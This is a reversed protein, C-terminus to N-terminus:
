LLPFLLLPGRMDRVSGRGMAVLWEMTDGREIYIKDMEKERDEGTCTHLRILFRHRQQRGRAITSARQCVGKEKRCAKESPSSPRFQAVKKWRRFGRNPLGGREEELLWTLEIEVM